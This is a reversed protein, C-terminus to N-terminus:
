HKLSEDAEALTSYAGQGPPRLEFKVHLTGPATLSYTLRFTPKSPLGASHMVIERGSTVTIHDYHITHGADDVYLAELQNAEGTPYITLYPRCQEQPAAARPRCRPGHIANFFAAM